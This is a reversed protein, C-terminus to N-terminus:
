KHSPVQPDVIEIIIKNQIPGGGEGVHEVEQKTPFLKSIIQYFM